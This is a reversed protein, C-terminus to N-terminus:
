SAPPQVQKISAARSPTGGREPRSTPWVLASVSIPINPKRSARYRDLLALYGHIAWLVAGFTAAALAPWLWVPVNLMAAAVTSGVAILVALVKDPAVIWSVFSVAWGAFKKAM